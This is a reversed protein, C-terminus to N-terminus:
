QNLFESETPDHGQTQQQETATPTGPIVKETKHAPNAQLGALTKEILADPVTVTPLHGGQPGTYNLGLDKVAKASAEHVEALTASRQAASAHDLEEKPQDLWRFVVGLIAFVLMLGIVAWFTKFRLFPNDLPIDSM